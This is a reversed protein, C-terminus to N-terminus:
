VADQQGAEAWLEGASITVGNPDCMRAFRDKLALEIIENLHNICRMPELFHRPERDFDTTGIVM